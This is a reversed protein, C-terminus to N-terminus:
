VNFDVILYPLLLINTYPWTSGKWWRLIRGLESPVMVRRRASGSVWGVESAVTGMGTRVWSAVMLWDFLVKARMNRGPRASWLEELFRRRCALVQDKKTADDKNPQAWNKLVCGIEEAIKKLDQLPSRGAGLGEETDDISEKYKQLVAGGFIKMLETEEKREEVLKQATSKFEPGEPKHNRSRMVAILNECARLGGSDTRWDGGDETCRGNVFRAPSSSPPASRMKVYGNDRCKVSDDGGNEFWWSVDSFLIISTRFTLSLSSKTSSHLIRQLHLSFSGRAIQKVRAADELMTRAHLGSQKGCPMVLEKVNRCFSGLVHEHLAALTERAVKLLRGSCNWDNGGFLRSDSATETSCLANGGILPVSPRMVREDNVEVAAAEDEEASGCM